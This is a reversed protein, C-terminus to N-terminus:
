GDIFIYGSITENFLHTLQKNLYLIRMKAFLVNAMINTQLKCKM